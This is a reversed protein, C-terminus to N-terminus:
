KLVESLESVVIQSNGLKDLIFDSFQKIHDVRLSQIDNMSSSDLVETSYSNIKYSAVDYKTLENKLDEVLSLNCKFSIVNQKKTLISGLKDLDKKTDITLKYFNFAFPNEFFRMSLTETDLLMVLHSYKTADESFNQGTLNGLNLITEKDNLFSGNHLHGNIFLDCSSEIDNLEFGNTSLFKGYQIGKIDNHSFVITHEFAQDATLKIASSYYDSLSSLRNEEEIYPLFLFRSAGIYELTPESIIKMNDKDLVNTSSFMLNSINSEHNGVIFVHMVNHWNVDNLATIEEATLDPRDFFDGLYVISDVDNEKALAECWSVSKILNELRKTYKLGRERVISSSSSWHVDGVILLKM